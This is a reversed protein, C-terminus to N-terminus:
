CTVPQVQSCRNHVLFASQTAEKRGERLADVSQMSDEIVKGGRCALTDITLRHTHMTSYTCIQPWKMWSGLPRSWPQNEVFNKGTWMWFGKILLCFFNCGTEFGIIELGVRGHLLNFFFLGDWFRNSFSFVHGV